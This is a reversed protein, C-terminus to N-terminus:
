LIFNYILSNFVLFIWVEEFYILDIINFGIDRGVRYYKIVYM